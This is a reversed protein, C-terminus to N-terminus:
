FEIGVTVELMGFPTIDTGDRSTHDNNGYSPDTYDWEYRTSAAGFYAGTNIFFGGEFRFRYGGNFIFIISKSTQEWEWQEDKAYLMKAQDYELLIGVYPKSRRAGIFYLPGGGFAIGSLEDLGDEHYHILYSVLGLSSFRVHTNLVVNETLGFEANILPGFQCFGLPNLSLAFKSMTYQDDENAYLTANPVFSLNNQGTLLATEQSGAIRSFALLIIFSVIKKM